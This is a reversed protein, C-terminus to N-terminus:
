PDNSIEGDDDGDNSIEDDFRRPTNDDTLTGRKGGGKGDGKGGGKRTELVRKPTGKKKSSVRFFKTNGQSEVLLLAISTFFLIAIDFKMKPLNKKQKIILIRPSTESKIKILIVSGSNLLISLSFPDDKSSYVEYNVFQFHLIFTEGRKNNIVQSELCWSPKM